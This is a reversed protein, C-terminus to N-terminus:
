KKNLRPKWSPQMEKLLKRVMPHIIGFRLAGAVRTSFPIRDVVAQWAKAPTEGVFSQEMSEECTVVFKLTGNESLIECFYEVEQNPDKISPFFRSSKFGIPYISSISPDFSGLSHIICGNGLYLPLIPKGKGDRVVEKYERKRKPKLDKRVSHIKREPHMYKEFELLNKEYYNRLRFAANNLIPDYCDMKVWIRTWSGKTQVMKQYGGQAEVLCFLQYLDLQKYGMFHRKYRNGLDREERCKNLERAFEERSLVGAQEEEVPNLLAQISVM